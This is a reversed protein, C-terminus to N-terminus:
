ARALEIQRAGDDSLLARFRLKALKTNRSDRAMALSGKNIAGCCSYKLAAVVRIFPSM